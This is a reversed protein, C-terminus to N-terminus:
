FVGGHFSQMWSINANAMPYSAVPKWLPEDFMGCATLVGLTIMAALVLIMVVAFVKSERDYRTYKM